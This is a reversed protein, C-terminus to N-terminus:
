VIGRGFGQQVRVREGRVVRVSRVTGMQPIVTGQKIDM